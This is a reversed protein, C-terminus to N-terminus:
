HEIAQERGPSRADSLLPRREDITINSFRHVRSTNSPARHHEDPAVNSFRTARSNNSPTRGRQSFSKWISFRDHVESPSVSPRRDKDEPTKGRDRYAYVVGFGILVLKMLGVLVYVIWASWGTWGVRVMMNVAFLWTYPVQLILGVLSLGGLHGLHWTTYVQPIWQIAALITVAIGLIDAWTQAVWPFRHLVIACVLLVAFAFACTILLVIWARRARRFTRDPGSISPRRGKIEADAEEEAYYVHM